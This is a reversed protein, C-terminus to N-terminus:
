ATRRRRSVLFLGFLLLLLLPVAAPASAVVARKFRNWYGLVRVIYPQNPYVGSADPHANGKGTNYASVARNINGGAWKLLQAFYQVGYWIGIAPDKLTAPDPVGLVTTATTDLVMMPGYSVHGHPEVSVLKAGHSSEAEIIGHVLAPDITVGYVPAWHAVASSVEADYKV